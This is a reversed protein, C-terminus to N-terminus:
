QVALRVVNRNQNRSTQSLRQGIGFLTLYKAASSNSSNALSLAHSELIV